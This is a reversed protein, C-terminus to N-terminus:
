WKPLESIPRLTVEEPATESNWYVEDSNIFDHKEVYKGRGNKFFWIDGDNDLYHGDTPIEPDYNWDIGLVDLTSLHVVRYEGQSFDRVGKSFVTIYPDGTEEDTVAYTKGDFTITKSM